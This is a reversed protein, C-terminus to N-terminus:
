SGTRALAEERQAELEGEHVPGGGTRENHKVRADHEQEALEEASYRVVPEPASEGSYRAKGPATGEPEQETSEANKKAAKKATSRKKATSSKKDEAM